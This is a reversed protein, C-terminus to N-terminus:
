DSPAVIEGEPDRRWLTGPTLQTGGLWREIGNARVHDLTGALAQRGADTLEVQAATYARYGPHPPGAAAELSPFSVGTVLPTKCFALRDVLRFFSADGLFRAAELEQTRAFLAAATLPGKALAALAREQTLSLGGGANPLEQLLRRFAPRMYPLDATETDNLARMAAPTSAGFAHWGRAALACHHPGVAVAEDELTRLTESSQVALYDGAQVLFLGETRKESAFFDLLQILQLQDYLDHEFWLEVRDYQGHNRAMADRAAFEAAVATFKRGFEQALFRVRVLSLAELLLGRPAPGEHLPDRWALM